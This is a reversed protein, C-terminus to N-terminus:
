DAKSAAENVVQQPAGAAINVQGVLVPLALRRVMALAQIAQLLRRHARDLLRHEHEIQPMTGQTSAARLECRWAVFWCVAIREALITEIPTPDPGAVVRTIQNMKMMMAESIAIDKGAVQDILRNKAMNAISFLSDILFDGRGPERLMACVEAHCTDDGKAARELLRETEPGPAPPRVKAKKVEGMRRKRWVREHQHYGAAVMLLGFFKRGEALLERTSGEVAKGWDKTAELARRELARERRRSAVIRAWAEGFRGPEYIRVVKAGRRKSRYYYQRSGIRQWAM